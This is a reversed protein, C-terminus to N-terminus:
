DPSCTLSVSWSVRPKGGISGMSAGGSIARKMAAIRLSCSMETDVAGIARQPCVPRFADLVQALLQLDVPRRLAYSGGAPGWMQRTETM